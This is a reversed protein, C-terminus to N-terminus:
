KLVFQVPLRVWMGVPESGRRGPEFKWRRVADMAARDLDPHGASQDVQVDAVRGDAAVFVRLMSTGEIGLRRATAPYSPRVQYGGSPTAMRTIGEEPPAKAVVPSPAPVPAAREVNAKLEAAAGPPDTAAIAFSERAAPPASVPAPPPSAVPPAAVAAPTSTPAPTAPAPPEPPPAMPKPTEVLRPFATARPAAPRPRAREPEPTPAPRDPEVIEAELVASLPPASWGPVIAALLGALVVHLACSAVLPVARSLHAPVFM